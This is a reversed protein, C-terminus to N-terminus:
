RQVYQKAQLKKRTHLISLFVQQAAIFAENKQACRNGAMVTISLTESRQISRRLDHGQLLGNRLKEKHKNGILM